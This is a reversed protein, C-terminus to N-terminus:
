QMCLDVLSAQVATLVAEQAEYAFWAIAVEVQEFETEHFDFSGETAILSSVLNQELLAASNQTLGAACNQTM